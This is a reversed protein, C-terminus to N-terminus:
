FLLWDNPLSSATVNTLLISNHDDITILTDAGSQHIDIHSKDPVVDSLDIHDVSSRFGIIKDNGGDYHVTGSASAKFTFADDHIGGTLKMNAVYGTVSHRGDPQSVDILIPSGDAATLQHTVLNSTTNSYYYSDRIGDAGVTTMEMKHGTSDYIGYITTGGQHAETYSKTGDANYRVLNVVKGAADFSQDSYLYLTSGALKYTQSESTGNAFSAFVTNQVGNVYKTTIDSVGDDHVTTMTLKGTGDFTKYTYDGSGNTAYFYSAKSGDVKTTTMEQIVGRQDYVYFITRDTMHKEIYANTGDARLRELLTVSGDAAFVQHQTAYTKGVIGYDFSESTGNAYHIYTAKQAGDAAYTYHSDTGNTSHQSLSIVKGTATDYQYYQSFGNNGTRELVSLKGNADFIQHQTNYNQGTIGYDFSEASGNAYKIYVGTKAGTSGSYTTTTDAGDDDHVIKKIAIGASNYAMYTYDGSGNAAYFYSTKAGSDQVTTMESLVGAKNYIYYITQSAQHKEIYAMTGDARSRELLTIKGDAGFSQHQTAYTKGTIGYDYSDSSGNAYHIYATKQAGNAGYTYYSDTGNIAHQKFSIINGTTADYKTVQEFGNAGTRELMQIKGNANFVQHQTTYAQGTIGYDYTERSGDTHNVIQGTMVGNKYTAYTVDGNVDVKATSSLQGNKFNETFSSGDPYSTKESLLTGNSLWQELTSKLTGTADYRTFLRWSSQEEEIAFSFGGAVKGLVDQYHEIMYLMTAKSSVQLVHDDTLTVTKLGQAGSLHDIQAVLQESTLTLNAAVTDVPETVPSTAGVEIIIPHDSLPVTITDVNTYVRIPATGTLPDYIYVKGYMGGLKITVTTAKNVIDVNAIDDWIEPEAWLVLDHVGNAKDLVMAHSKAPMGSLAYNLTGSPAGGEDGYSLITTMNHLAVAAPKASGDTRFLGFHSESDGTDKTNTDFLEYLYTKQAGNEYADFLGNLVLKAQSAESVGLYNFSQLTTYGTETIVLPDKNNVTEALSIQYEQTDDAAYRTHTYTHVNAYDSYQSLDGLAAYAKIDDYGITMNLVPLDGIVGSAHVATYLEKQFAAAAEMSSSGNYSFHYINAENLGEVGTLIGAHNQSFAELGRIFDGLAASGGGPVDSSVVINMKIGANALANQVQEAVGSPRFGDRVSDIGLYNLSQVVLSSNQYVGTGFAAHTNVGLSDLFDSAKSM